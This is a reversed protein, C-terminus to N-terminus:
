YRMCSYQVWGPSKDVIMHLPYREFRQSTISSTVQNLDGSSELVKEVKKGEWGLTPFFAPEQVLQGWFKVLAWLINLSLVWIAQSFTPENWYRIYLLNLFVFDSESFFQPGEILPELPGQFKQSIEVKTGMQVFDWELVWFFFPPALSCIVSVYFFWYIDCTLFYMKFIQNSTWCM